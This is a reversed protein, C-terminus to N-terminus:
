RQESSRRGAPTFLIDLWTSRMVCVTRVIIVQVVLDGSVSVFIKVRCLNLFVREGGLASLVGHRVLSVVVCLLPWKGNPQGSRSRLATVDCSSAHLLKSILRQPATTARPTASATATLCVGVVTRPCNISSIIAM